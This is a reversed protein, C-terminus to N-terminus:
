QHPSAMPDSPERAIRLLCAARIVFVTFRWEDRGWYVMFTMVFNFHSSTVSSAMKDGAVATPLIISACACGTAKTWQIM